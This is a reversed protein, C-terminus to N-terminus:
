KTLGCIEGFYNGQFKNYKYFEIKIIKSNLYNDQNNENLYTGKLQYFIKVYIYRSINDEYDKRRALFLGVEDSPYRLHTFKEFNEFSLGLPKFDDKSGKFLPMVNKLLPFKIDKYGNCSFSPLFEEKDYDYNLFYVGGTISYVTTTDIKLLKSQLENGSEKLAANYEFENERTKNYLEKKFRFLYEERSEKITKKSFYHANTFALDETMITSILKKKNSLTVVVEGNQVASEIDIYYSKKFFGKDGVKVITKQKKFITSNQYIKKIFLKQNHIKYKLSKYGKADKSENDYVRIASYQKYNSYGGITILKNTNFVSGDSTKYSKVTQAFFTLSFFFPFLVTIIKTNM